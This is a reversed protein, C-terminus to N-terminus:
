NSIRHKAKLRYLTMRSVGLQRAARTVNSGASQLSMYVALREAETRAVDLADHTPADLHEELGLDM